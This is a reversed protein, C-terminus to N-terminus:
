GDPELGYLQRVRIALKLNGDQRFTRERATAFAPAPAPVTVDLGAPIEHPEVQEPWNSSPEVTVSLAAALPWDRKAPQLPSQEPAPVQTTEIVPFWETVAVNLAGGSVGSDHL